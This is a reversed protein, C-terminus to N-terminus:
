VSGYEAPWREGLAQRVRALLSRDGFFIFPAAVLCCDGWLQTRVFWDEDARGKEVYITGRWRAIDQSHKPLLNLEKWDQSTTTLFANHATAEGHQTPVVRFEIGAARLHAVMEPISWANMSESAPKRSERSAVCVLLVLGAALVWAALSVLKTLKSTCGM